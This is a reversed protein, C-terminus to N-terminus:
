GAANNIRVEVVHPRRDDILNVVPDSQEVGDITVKARAKAGLTQLVTIHYATERYRYRVEFSKWDAPVCPAFHLKDTELRAGLLSELIFQYMWGASGTYWTWGGRGTHPAFAYVDSALVYPETKYVAISDASNAHNVPDIMTFLKWAREVDGLEAFAMAAWVAAHTYQGGNERVGRLYGKIYGPNPESRDFPPDLLQILAGDPHVLHKDVADM